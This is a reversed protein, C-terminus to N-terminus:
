NPDRRKLKVILTDTGAVPMPQPRGAEGLDAMKDMLTPIQDPKITVRLVAKTESQELVASRGQLEHVLKELAVITQRIDAVALTVGSQAASAEAKLPVEKSASMGPMPTQARSLKDGAAEEIDRAESSDKAKTEASAVAAPAPAMAPEEALTSQQLTQTEQKNQYIRPAPRLQTLPASRRAAEPAKAVPLTPRQPEPLATQGNPVTEEEIPAPMSEQVTAKRAGPTFLEPATTRYLSFVFVAAVLMAFAELPVKIHLPFFLKHFLGTARRTKAESRVQEMIRAKLWAPPDEDKLGRALSVGRTLESLTDRCAPCTQLHEAVLREEEASLGQDLYGPLIMEIDQCTM